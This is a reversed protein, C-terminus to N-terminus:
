ITSPDIGGGGGGDSLFGGGILLRGGLCLRWYILPMLM